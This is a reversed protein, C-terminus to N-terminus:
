ETETETEASDTSSETLPQFTFSILRMGPMQRKCGVAFVDKLAIPEGRVRYLAPDRGLMFAGKEDVPTEMFDHIIYGPADVGSFQVSGGGEESEAVTISNLDEFSAKTVDFTYTPQRQEDSELLEVVGEHYGARVREMCADLSEEGERWDEEEFWAAIDDCGTLLLSAAFVFLIRNM